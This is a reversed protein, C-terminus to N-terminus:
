NIIEMHGISALLRKVGKGKFAVTVEFDNGLSTTLCAIVVGEGFIKHSVHDGTKFPSENSKKPEIKGKGSQVILSDIVEMPSNQEQTKSNNRSILHSPIDRLFRSPGGSSNGYSSQFSRNTALTMYLREQARTMGVYCLRREEEIEAPDGSDLSRRHPLLGEEMGIMFVIPFELGKAQHLTILTVADPGGDALKDLDTSLAASELFSGLAIENELEAYEVVASRLEMLNEWRDERNEELEIFKKYGIMEILTDFLVLINQKEAVESLEDIMSLFLRIQNLSRAAIKPLDIPSESVDQLVMRLAVYLPLDNLQAWSQIISITRLGIGRGPVNIIRLLSVTDYPNHIFRLYALIDKVERREWFRLGGIIRYPIGARVFAEEPARSQANTRYMIAVDGYHAVDSQVLREIESAVHLAEEQENYTHAINILHGDPNDTWLELDNRNSNGIVKQAAAVITGTSRYNRGLIIRKADKFDKEFDLINRIDAHRWSYISQNPDGVVCLNNYKSVVQKTMLYQSRNTDQWEDVMTYVFRNQFRALVSPESQFLLVPKLLLDDFDLAKNGGLIKEYEVYVRNVIEEFYSSGQASHEQITLMQNKASSIANKIAVPSYRKPDLGLDQLCQKIVSKQEDDDYIVFSKDIGLTDGNQRLIRAGFSHFTGLTLSSSESGLLENIRLQMEKAAKNTFTVALINFPKVGMIKVLYAIRRTIVRTKGSGPGAMILVPGDVTQVADKQESNLDDLLLQELKKNM